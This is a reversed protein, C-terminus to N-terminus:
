LWAARPDRSAVALVKRGTLGVRTVLLRCDHGRWASQAEVGRVVHDDRDIVNRGARFRRFADGSPLANRLAMFHRHDRDFFARRDALEPLDDTESGPRDGRAFPHVLVIARDFFERAVIMKALIRTELVDQGNLLLRGKLAIPTCVALDPRAVIERHQSRHIARRGDCPQDGLLDFARVHEGVIRIDVSDDREDVACPTADGGLALSEVREHPRLPTVCSVGVNARGQHHAKTALHKLDAAHLLFVPDDFAVREVAQRDLRSAARALGNCGADIM